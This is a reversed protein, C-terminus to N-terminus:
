LCEDRISTRQTTSCTMRRSTIATQDTLVRTEKAINAKLIPTPDKITLKNVVM